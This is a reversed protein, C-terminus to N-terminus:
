KEFTIINHATLCQFCAVLTEVDGLADHQIIPNKGFLFYYLESLKPYKYERGRFPIKTIRSGGISTCFTDMQLLWELEKKNGSRYLESALVNQDFQVNHAILLKCDISYSMIERVADILKVGFKEAKHETIGHFNSNHIKFKDPKIIFNLTKIHKMPSVLNTDIKYPVDNVYIQNYETEGVCMEYVACAISVIRCCDYYKTKNYPHFNNFNLMEPLGTTETDIFLIKVNKMINYRNEYKLEYNLEM